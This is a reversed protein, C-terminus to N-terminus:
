LSTCASHRLAPRIELACIIPMKNKTIYCLPSYLLRDPSTPQYAGNPQHVPVKLPQKRLAWILANQGTYINDDYNGDYINM